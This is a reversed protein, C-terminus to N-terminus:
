GGVMQLVWVGVLVRGRGYVDVALSVSLRLSVKGNIMLAKISIEGLGSCGTTGWSPARPVQLLPLVPVGICGLPLAHALKRRGLTRGLCLELVALWVEDRVLSVGRLARIYGLGRSM